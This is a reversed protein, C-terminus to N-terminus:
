GDAQYGFFGSGYGSNLGFDDLIRADNRAWRGSGLLVQISGAHEINFICPLFLSGVHDRRYDCM